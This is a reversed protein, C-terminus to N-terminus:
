LFLIKIFILLISIVPIFLLIISSLCGKEQTNSPYIIKESGGLNIGMMEPMSLTTGKAGRAELLPCIDRFGSILAEDYATAGLANAANPDAGAELLIEVLKIKKEKQMRAKQPDKWKPWVTIAWHLSNQGSTNRINVDAGKCILFRVMEIDEALLTYFLVTMGAEDRLNIDVGRSLLGEVEQRNGNKIAEFLAEKSM